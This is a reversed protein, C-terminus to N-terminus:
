KGTFCTAAPCTAGSLGAAGPVGAPSVLSRGRGAAAGPLAELAGCAASSAGDVLWRDLPSGGKFQRATSSDSLGAAVAPQVLLFAALAALSTLVAALGLADFQACSCPGLGGLAAGPAAAAYQESHGHGEEPGYPEADYGEETGYPEDDYGEETGYPEAGYGDEPGYGDSHGYMDPTHQDPALGRRYGASRYETHDTGPYQETGPYQGTGPSQQTGPEHGNRYGPYLYGGDALRYGSYVPGARGLLPSAGPASRGCAAVALALVLSRLM